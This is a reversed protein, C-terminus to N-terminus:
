KKFRGSAAMNRAVLVTLLSFPPLLVMYERLIPIIALVATLLVTILAAFVVFRLKRPGSNRESISFVVACLFSEGVYFTWNLTALSDFFILRTQADATMDGYLFSRELSGWILVSFALQFLGYVFFDLGLKRM